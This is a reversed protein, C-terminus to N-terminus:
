TAAGDAPQRVRQRWYRAAIIARRVRIPPHQRGAAWSLASEAARAPAPRPDARRRAAAAATMADFVATMVEPGQDAAAGLDANVEMTWKLMSFAAHLVLAAWAADPWALAWGALFMFRTSLGQLHWVAAQWAQTHRSEHALTAAAIGAPGEAIHSGMIIQVRDAFLHTTAMHGPSGPGARAILLHASQWGRATVAALYRDAAALTEAPVPPVRDPLWERYATAEAAWGPEAQQGAQARLRAQMRQGAPIGLGALLMWGTIAATIAVPHPVLQRFGMGALLAVGAALLPWAAGRTSRAIANMAAARAEEERVWWRSEEDLRDASSRAEAPALSHAQANDGV